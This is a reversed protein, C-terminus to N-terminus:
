RHRIYPTEGEGIIEQIIKVVSVTNSFRVGNGPQRGPTNQAIKGNGIYITVHGYPSASYGITDGIVLAKGNVTTNTYSTIKEAKGTAFVGYSGNAEDVPPLGACEAVFKVYGACDLCIQDPPCYTSYLKGQPDIKTAHDKYPAHGGFRGGIRFTIHGYTSNVIDPLSTKQDCIIKTSVIDTSSATPTTGSSVAPSPEDKLLEIYNVTKLSLSKLNTTNPDILYAISYAALLLVLGTIANTIRTKAKEIYKSKGRSMVYQLGGIMMMVVAVLAAAAMVWGYIANIYVALFNVSVDDGVATPKTFGSFGPIEVNLNPVIFDAVETTPAEAATTGATAAAAAIASGQNGQGVTYNAAGSSLTCTRTYTDGHM